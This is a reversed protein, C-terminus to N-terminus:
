RSWGAAEDQYFRREHRTREPSRPPELVDAAGVLLLAADEAERVLAGVLLAEDHVAPLVREDQQVLERVRGSVQQDSGHPMEPLECLEVVVLSELDVPERALAHARQGLDVARLSVVEAPVEAADGARPDSVVDVEM